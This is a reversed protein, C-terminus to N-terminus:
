FDLLERYVRHVPLGVVNFYSGSINKVGILGIWEQIGYSGAKDLPNYNEVYYRIEQDRLAKFTVETTESFSKEKGSRILAVGTMVKHSRGSLRSLMDVAEDDSGPKGLVEDELIVVTDATLIVEGPAVPKHVEAKKRALYEAIETVPLHPPYTEEVPLSRVVFDFGAERM